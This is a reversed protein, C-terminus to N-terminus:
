ICDLRKKFRWLALIAFLLTFSIIMALCIWYNLFGPQGLLAARMGEFPYVLPNLLSLWAFFPVSVAMLKWSFQFAGTTFLLFGWRIWFRGYSEQNKMVLSIFLSFFGYMLNAVVYILLFKSLSVASLDIKNWLLLVGIPFIAINLLIAKITYVLAMKVCVLWSPLPLSLEYSVSKQGELDSVLNGADTGTSNLCMVAAVGALMFSGYDIPVGLAPMIYGSVFLIGAPLLTADIVSNMFNKGLVRVDRWILWLFTSFPLQFNTM